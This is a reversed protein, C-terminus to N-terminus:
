LNVLTAKNGEMKGKVIQVLGYFDQNDNLVTEDGGIFTTNTLAEYMELAADASAKSMAMNMEHRNPNKFYAISGNVEVAYIGDKAYKAKWAAIQDATAQGTLAAAAPATDTATAAAPPPNATDPLVTENQTGLAEPQEGGSNDDAATDRFVLHKRYM